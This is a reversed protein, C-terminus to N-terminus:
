QPASVDREDLIRVDAPDIIIEAERRATLYGLIAARPAEGTLLRGDRSGVRPVTTAFWRGREADLTWAIGSEEDDWGEGRYITLPDGPPLSEGDEIREGAAIDRWLRLLYWTNWTRGPWESSTWAAALAERLPTRAAAHWRIVATLKDEHGYWGVAGLFDGRRVCAAILSRKSREGAALKAFLEPPGEISLLRGGVRIIMEAPSYGTM